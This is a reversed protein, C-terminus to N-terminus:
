VTRAENQLWIQDQKLVQLTRNPAVGVSKIEGYAFWGVVIGLILYTGGIILAAWFWAYPSPLFLGRLLAILAFTLTMWAALLLAACGALLPISYKFTRVKEAIEAKLLGVRTTVFEKIEQKTEALLGALSKETHM